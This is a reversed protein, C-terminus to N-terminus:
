AQYYAELLHGGSHLKYCTLGLRLIIKCLKFSCLLFIVVADRGKGPFNLFFPLLLVGLSLIINRFHVREKENFNDKWRWIDWAFLWQKLNWIWFQKGKIKTFHGFKSEATNKIPLTCQSVPYPSPYTERKLSQEMKWFTIEFDEWLIKM